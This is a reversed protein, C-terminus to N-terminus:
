PILMQGNSRTSLIVPSANLGVHNLMAILMFNIEAVNGVRNQYAKSVGDRTLSGYGKNWNMRNQVFQFVKEMKQKQPEDDKILANIETEFYNRAEVQKGFRDEKYINKAVDEWTISFYKNDKPDIARISQLEQELMSRYNEINDVFPEEVLAPVDYIEYDTVVARYDMVQNVKTNEVKVDYSQKRQELKQRPSIDLYGRLIKKYDYIEPVESTYSAYYVPIDYQFQFDPLKSISESKTTYKIDIISGVTVNPMTITKKKWYENLTEKFSGESNLKTREVKGNVLNHTYCDKFSVVDPNINTWGVYYPVDFNAYELGPNKYIRIRVINETHCDFGSKENYVFYCRTKKYLVAAIASTDQPYSQGAFDEKTVKGYTFKQAQVNHVLLLIISLWFVKKM